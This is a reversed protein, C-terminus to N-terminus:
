PAGTTHIQLTRIPRRERRRTPAYATAWYTASCSPKRRM